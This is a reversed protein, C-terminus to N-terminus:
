KMKSLKSLKIQNIKNVKWLDKYNLGANGIPRRARYYVVHKPKWAQM